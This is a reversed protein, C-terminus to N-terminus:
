IKNMESEIVALQIKLLAKNHASRPDNLAEIIRDRQKDLNNYYALRKEQENAESPKVNTDNRETSRKHNQSPM